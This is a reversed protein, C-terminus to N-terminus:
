GLGYIRKLGGQRDLNLAMIAIDHTDGEADRVHDRLLAEPLFGMDEFVKLAGAQDPTLRAVIKTVPLDLAQAMCEQTLARGFGSGRLGPDVVIRVEAVHPSWSLEDRVLATCGAVKGAVDHAVLSRMMGREVQEIWAAVVKPNRIDRALFLLDHAPISRAFAVVDEADEAVMPRVTMRHAKAVITRPYTLTDSM